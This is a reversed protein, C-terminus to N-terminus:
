AAKSVDVKLNQPDRIYQTPRKAESLAQKDITPGPEAHYQSMVAPIANDGQPLKGWPSPYKARVARNFEEMKKEQPSAIRATEGERSSRINSLGFSEVQERVMRDTRATKGNHYAPPTRFEREAAVSCGKPCIPKDSEFDGHGPCFYEKVIGM